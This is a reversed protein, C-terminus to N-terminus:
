EDTWRRGPSQPGLTPEDDLHRKGWQLMSGVVEAMAEGQETLSYQVRVPKSDVIRRDILGEDELTTLGDSLMKNSIGSVRSRLDSFGLEEETVLQHIIVPHWKNGIVDAVEVLVEQSGDYTSDTRGVPTHDTSM